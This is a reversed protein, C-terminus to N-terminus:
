LCYSHAAKFTRHLPRGMGYNANLTHCMFPHRSVHAPANTFSVLPDQEGERSSTYTHSDSAALWLSTQNFDTASYGLGKEREDHSQM